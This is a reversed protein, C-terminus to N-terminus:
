IGLVRPKEDEVRAIFCCVKTSGIDLAALLTGRPRISPKLPRAQGDAGGPSRGKAQTTRPPAEDIASMQEKGVPTGEQIDPSRKAGGPKRACRPPRPTPCRGGSRGTELHFEVERSPCAAGVRQGGIRRPPSCRDRQRNAPELASRRCPDCRYG